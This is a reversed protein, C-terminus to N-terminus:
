KGKDNNILNFMKLIRIIQLVESDYRGKVDITDVLEKIIDEFFKVEIGKSNFTKIFKNRKEVSKGFMQHTTVFVKTYPKDGILEKIKKVREKRLMQKLFSSTTEKDTAGISFASRWKIEYDYYHGKNDVVFLDINSYNSGGKSGWVKFRVDDLTFQKKCIHLWQKIIEENVDTM